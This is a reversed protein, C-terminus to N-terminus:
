YRDLRDCDNLRASIGDCLHLLWAIASKPAVPSGYERQGHHALIAHTVDLEIDKCEGTREVAKSWEIASRSIHHIVRKHDASGWVNDSILRYDWIKGWDHMLAALFLTRGDLNQYWKERVDLCMQVVEYTHTLLGGTGYHHQEPKSSGSWISFREDLLLYNAINTVGILEAQQKLEDLLHRNGTM